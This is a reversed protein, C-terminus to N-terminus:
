VCRANDAEDAPLRPRPGPFPMRAERVPANLVAVEVGRLLASRQWDVRAADGIFALVNGIAADQGARAITASLMTIATERQPTQAGSQLLKELVVSESDRLGSLTADVVVPDL